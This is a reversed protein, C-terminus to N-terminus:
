IFLEDVVADDPLWGWSQWELPVLPDLSADQLKKEVVAAFDVMGRPDVLGMATRLQAATPPLAEGSGEKM